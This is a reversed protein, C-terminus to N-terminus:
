CLEINEENWEKKFEEVFQVLVAHRTQALRRGEGTKIGDKLRLLKDEFHQLSNEKTSPSFIPRGKAGGYAFTRAIGIAGMADLRHADCVIASETQLEPRCPKGTTFSVSEVVELVAAQVPRPVKAEDMIQCLLDQRSEKTYGLKHDGIDHLYASLLVVDLNCTECVALRRSMAAVRLTHYFDHGTADGTQIEQVRQKIVEWNM